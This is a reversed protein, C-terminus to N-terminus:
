SGVVMMHYDHPGLKPPQPQWFRSIMTLFLTPSLGITDYLFTMGLGADKCITCEVSGKVSIVWPAM